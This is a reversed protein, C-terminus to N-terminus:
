FRITDYGAWSDDITLTIKLKASKINDLIKPYLHHEKALPNESVYGNVKSSFSNISDLSVTPLGVSESYFSRMIPFEDIIPKECSPLMIGM